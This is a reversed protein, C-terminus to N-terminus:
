KIYTPHRNKKERSSIINTTDKMCFQKKVRKNKKFGGSKSKGGDEM